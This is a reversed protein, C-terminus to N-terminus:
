AESGVKEDELVKVRGLDGRLVGRDEGWLGESCKLTTNENVKDFESVSAM